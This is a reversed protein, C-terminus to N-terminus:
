HIMLLIQCKQKVMQGRKMDFARIFVATGCPFDPHVLVTCFSSALATFTIICIILFQLKEKGFVFCRVKAIETRLCFHGGAKHCPEAIM